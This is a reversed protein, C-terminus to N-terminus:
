GFRRNQLDEWCNECLDVFNKRIALRKVERKYWVWADMSYKCSLSTLALIYRNLEPYFIFSLGTAEEITSPFWHRNYFLITAFLIIAALGFGDRIIYETEKWRPTDVLAHPTFCRPCTDDRLINFARNM